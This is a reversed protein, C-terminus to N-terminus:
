SSSRSPVPYGGTGTALRVTADDPEVSGASLAYYGAVSQDVRRCAVYVRATDAQQAQLAHQRFWRTQDSSGCDFTSRDQDKTLPGIPAYRSV